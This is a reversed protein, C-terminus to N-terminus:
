SLIDSCQLRLISDFRLTDVDKIRQVEDLIVLGYQMQNFNTKHQYSVGEWTNLIIQPLNSSAVVQEFRFQRDIGDGANSEIWAVIYDGQWQNFVKLSTWNEGEQIWVKRGALTTVILTPPLPYVSYLFELVILVARTKGLGMEHALFFSDGEMMAKLIDEVAQMQHYHLPLKGHLEQKL